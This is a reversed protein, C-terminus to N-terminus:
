KSTFSHSSEGQSSTHVLVSPDNVQPQLRAPYWNDGFL